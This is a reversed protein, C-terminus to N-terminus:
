PHYDQSRANPSPEAFSLTGPRDLTEMMLELQELVSARLGDRGCVPEVRGKRATRGAWFGRRHRVIRTGLEDQQSWGLVSRRGIDIVVLTAV